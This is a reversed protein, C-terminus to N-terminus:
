PTYFEPEYGITFSDDSAWRLAQFHQNGPDFPCTPNAVRKFGFRVYYKPDGLVFVPVAAIRPSVLAEAVLTAGVGRRQFDPHVGLPALHFGIAVNDRYAKTFAIHATIRGDGRMVWELVERGANRLALVLASEFASPAFTRDLLATIEDWDGPAVPDAKM